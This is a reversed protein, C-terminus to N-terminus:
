TGKGLTPHSNSSALLIRFGLASRWIRALRLEVPYVWKLYFKYASSDAISSATDAANSRSILRKVIPLMARVIYPTCDIQHVSLGAEQMLITATHFTFFRLHTRDM